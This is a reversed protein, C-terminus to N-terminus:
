SAPHEAHSAEWTPRRVTPVIVVTGRFPRPKAATGSRTKRRKGRLTRIDSSRSWLRHKSALAVLSASGSESEDKLSRNCTRAPSSRHPEPWGPGPSLLALGRKSRRGSIMWQERWTPWGEPHKPGASTPRKRVLLAHHPALPACHPRRDYRRDGPCRPRPGLGLRPCRVRPLTGDRRRQTGASLM